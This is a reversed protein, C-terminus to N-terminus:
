CPSFEPMCSAEKAHSPTFDPLKPAVGREALYRGADRVARPAGLDDPLADLAWAFAELYVQRALNPELLAPTIGLPKLSPDQRWLAERGASLAPECIMVEREDIRVRTDIQKLDPKIRAVMDPGLGFASFIVSQALDEYVRFQPILAKMPTPMDGFFAESGDHLLYCLAESRTRILGSRHAHSTMIVSHEAVSYFTVEESIQGAYRCTRSLGAAIDELYVQSEQPSEISWMGGRSTALWSGTFETGM